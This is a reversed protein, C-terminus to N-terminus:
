TPLDEFWSISYETFEDPTSMGPDTHQWRGVIGLERLTLEFHCMAIGMDVRQLDAMNLMKAFNSTRYGRTRRLYFHWTNGTRVIRWPQRNSASPGLRVMELAQAYKGIGNQELPCDFQGDFFLKRWPLRGDSGATERIKGDVWRLKNAIHGVAAVAPITETNKLNIKKAFRSRTFTGGLWCTGLGLETAKLVILEMLYGFDELNHAGKPMAGVMFAAAGKIFGYTGLGRLARSDGQTAAILEFRIPNGLPGDPLSDLLSLLSVLVKQELPFKLYTRCSYRETITAIIPKNFVVM